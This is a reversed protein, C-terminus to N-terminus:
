LLALVKNISTLTWGHKNELSLKKVSEENRMRKVEKWFM